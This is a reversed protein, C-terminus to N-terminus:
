AADDVELVVPCHDSGMVDALIDVSKIHPLVEKAVVFYDIRWGVNRARANFQQNWWTYADTKDPNFHRYTDIYGHEMLKTFWAREEPLFGANKTNDKPRALDIEEHAVNLDGTIIVLRGEKRRAEFEALMHDNFRLKYDVREPGRGSNPFYIGYITYPGVDCRLVRGEADFEESGCGPTVNAVPIKAFLATGSYGKREAPHWFSQYHEHELLETGLQDVQAKIEQVFLLDPEYDHLFELFGKRLAARIGNVNWSILKM